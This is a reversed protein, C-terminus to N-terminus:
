ENGWLLEFITKMSDRIIQSEIIIAFEEKFSIISVKNRGYINMEMRLKFKDKDLLKTQRLQQVNKSVVHKQIAENQPLIARVGQRLREPV